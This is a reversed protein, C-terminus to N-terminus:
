DRKKDEAMWFINKKVILVLILCTRANKLGGLVMPFLFCPFGAFVVPFGCLFDKSFWLFVTSLWLFGKLFVM